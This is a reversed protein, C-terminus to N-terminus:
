DPLFMLAKRELADTGLMQYIRDVDGIDTVHHWVRNNPNMCVNYLDEEDVSGLGKYREVTVVEMLKNFIEYLFVVSVPKNKFVSTHKTSVLIDFESCM